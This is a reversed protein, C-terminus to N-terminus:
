LFCKMKSCVDKSKSVFSQHLVGMPLLEQKIEFHSFRENVFFLNSDQNSMLVLGKRANHAECPDSSAEHHHNKLM